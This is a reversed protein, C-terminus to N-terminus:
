LGKSSVLLKEFFLKKKQKRKYLILTGPNREKNEQNSTRISTYLKKTNQGYAFLEGPTGKGGWNLAPAPKLVATGLRFKFEPLMLM